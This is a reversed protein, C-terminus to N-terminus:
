TWLKGAGPDSLLARFIVLGHLRANWEKLKM